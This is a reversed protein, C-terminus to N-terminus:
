RPKSKLLSELRELADAQMAGDARALDLAAAGLTRYLGAVAPDWADLAKMESAVVSVDGRAVPGTLARRTGLAFVNNVTERVLPEMMATATERPIGAREYCKLGTEMLAVLYNCVIVGAAHYVPKSAPDIRSVRAGIAQFAPVLVALAAPEGEAICYTGSFSSVAAAADAFTKL